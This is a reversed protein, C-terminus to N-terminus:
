RGCFGVVVFDPGSDFEEDGHDPDDTGAVVNPHIGHFPGSHQMGEIPSATQVREVELATM